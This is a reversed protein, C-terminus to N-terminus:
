RLSRQSFHALSALFNSTAGPAFQVYSTKRCRLPLRSYLRGNMFVMLKRYDLGNPLAAVLADDQCLLVVFFPQQFHFLLQGGGVGRFHVEVRDERLMIELGYRYRAM